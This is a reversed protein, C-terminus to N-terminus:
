FVCIHVTNGTFILQEEMNPENWDISNFYNNIQEDVEFDDIRYFKEGYLVNISYIDCWYGYYIPVTYPYLLLNDANWYVYNLNPDYYFAVNEVKINNEAEYEKIKEVMSSVVEINQKTSNINAIQLYLVLSINAILLIITWIIDIIHKSHTKKNTIYIKLIPYIIIFNFMTRPLLRVSNNFIFIQFSIISMIILCIISLLNEKIKEADFLKLNFGFLFALLLIYTAFIFKNQSSTLQKLSQLIGTFLRPDINPLISNLYWCILYNIVLPSLYLLLIKFLEKIYYNHKENPKSIFMVLTSLVVFIQSVGQYCFSSILILFPIIAYKQKINSNFIRAAIISLLLGFIMIGNEFYLMYESVSINIFMLLTCIYVVVKKRFTPNSMHAILMSFTLQVCSVLFIISLIWNIRYLLMYIDISNISINLLNLIVFYLVQLIRGENFKLNIMFENSSDIIRYADSVLHFKFFAGYALLLILTTIIILILKKTKSSM